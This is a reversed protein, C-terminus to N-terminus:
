CSAKYAAAKGEASNLNDKTIITFGTGIKPTTPQGKLAKIAQEM